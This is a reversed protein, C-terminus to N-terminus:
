MSMVLSNWPITPKDATTRSRTDMAFRIGGVAITPAPAKIRVAIAIFMATPAITCIASWLQPSIRLETPFSTRTIPAITPAANRACFAITPTAASVTNANERFINVSANVDAAPRPQSAMLLPRKAIPTPRAMRIAAPYRARPATGPMIAKATAMPTRPKVIMPIREPRVIRAATMVASTTATDAAPGEIAAPMTAIADPIPAAAAIMAAAAGAMWAANIPTKVAKSFEAGANPLATVARIRDSIGATFSNIIKAPTAM